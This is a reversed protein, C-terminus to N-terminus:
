GVLVVLLSKPGHVGMALIMEIDATRSAGTVLVLNSPMEAQYEGSAIFASLTPFIRAAEVIVLHVPMALSLLRPEEPSPVLIVSGSEAIGGRSTTIGCETSFLEEKQEELSREYRLLSIGERGTLHAVLPELRPDSGMMVSPVRRKALWGGVLSPLAEWDAARRLEGGVAEVERIFRVSYDPFEPSDSPDGLPPQLERWRREEERTDGPPADSVDAGERAARLRGLIREKATTVKATDGKDTGAMRM